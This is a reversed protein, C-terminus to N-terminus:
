MDLKTNMYMDWCFMCACALFVSKLEGFRAPVLRLWCKNEVIFTIITRTLLIIGAHLVWRVQQVADAQQM